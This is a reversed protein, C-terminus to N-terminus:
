MLCEVSNSYPVYKMQAAEIASDEDRVVMLKFHAGTPTTVLKAHQIGFIETVKNLCGEHSISLIGKNKTQLNGHRFDEKCAEKM